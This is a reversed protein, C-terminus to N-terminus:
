QISRKIAAKSTKKLKKKEKLKAPKETSNQVLYGRSRKHDKDAVRLKKLALKYKKILLCQAFYHTTHENISRFDPFVYNIPFIGVNRTSLDLSASYIHMQTQRQFQKM